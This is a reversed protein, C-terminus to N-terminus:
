LTYIKTRLTNFSVEYRYKDQGLKGQIGIFIANGEAQQNQVKELGYWRETFATSIGYLLVHQLTQLAELLSSKGSGNNGVFVSFDTLKVSASRIAKFNKLTIKEIM